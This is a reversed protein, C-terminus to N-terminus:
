IIVVLYLDDSDTVRIFLRLRVEHVKSRLSVIREERLSEIRREVREEFINANFIEVIFLKLDNMERM